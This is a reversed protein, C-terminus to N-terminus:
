ILYIKDIYGYWKRQLYIYSRHLLLPLLILLMITKQIHIKQRLKFITHLFILAIFIHKFLLFMADKISKATLFGFTKTKPLIIKITIAVRSNYKIEHTVTINQWQTWQGRSREHFNFNARTPWSCSFLLSSCASLCGSMLCKRSATLVSCHLRTSKIFRSTGQLLRDIDFQPSHRQM